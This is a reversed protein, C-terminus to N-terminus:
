RARGLEADWTMFAEAYQLMTGLLPPSPLTMGRHNTRPRTLLSRMREWVDTLVLSSRVTLCGIYGQPRM